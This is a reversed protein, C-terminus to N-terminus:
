SLDFEMELQPIIAEPPLGDRLIREIVKREVNLYGSLSGIAEWINPSNAKTVAKLHELISERLATEITSESGSGLLGNDHFSKYDTQTIILHDILTINITSLTSALVKTLHKDQDSPQTNGSPHNHAVAVFSALCKSATAVVLPIDVLVQNKTGIGSILYGIPNLRNNLFLSVFVEQYNVKEAIVQRFFAAMELTSNLSKESIIRPIFSLKIEPIVALESEISEDFLGENLYLITEKKKSVNYKM